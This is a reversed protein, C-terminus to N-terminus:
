VGDACADDVTPYVPIIEDLGVIRLPSLVPERVTSLRLWGGAAKVLRNARLLANIGSSDMFHTATFDVVVNPAAASVRATITELLAPATVFDLTPGATVVSVRQGEDPLPSDDHPM